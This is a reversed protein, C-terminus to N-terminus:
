MYNRALSRALSFFLPSEDSSFHRRVWLFFHQRLVRWLNVLSLSGSHQHTIVDQSNQILFETKRWILTSKMPFLNIKKHTYIWSYNTQVHEQTCTFCFALFSFNLFFNIFISSFLLRHYFPFKTNSRLGAAPFGLSFNLVSGHLRQLSFFFFCISITNPQHFIIYYMPLAHSIKWSARLWIAVNELSARRQIQPHVFGISLLWNKETEVRAACIVYHESNKYGNCIRTGSM